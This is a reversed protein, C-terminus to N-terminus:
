TYFYGLERLSVFDRPREATARGLVVHDLLDIKLVTGAKIMDRTFRVDAESPSPDGSPHNHALICSAGAAAIVPRFIERPSTTMSDLTGIGVRNWCIMRRRANLVLVLLNEKDPEFDPDTELLNRVARAATEPNDLVGYRHGYGDAQERLSPNTKVIVQAWDTGAQRIRRRVLPPPATTDIPIYTSM